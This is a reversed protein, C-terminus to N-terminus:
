CSTLQYLNTDANCSCCAPQSASKTKCTYIQLSPRPLFGGVYCFILSCMRLGRRLLRKPIRIILFGMQFFYSVFDALHTLRHMEFFEFPFVPSFTLAAYVWNQSLLCYKCSQNAMTLILDFYFAMNGKTDAAFCSFGASAM